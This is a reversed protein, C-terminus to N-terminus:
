RAASAPEPPRASPNRRYDDANVEGDTVWAAHAQAARVRRAQEEPLHPMTAGAAEARDVLDAHELQVAAREAELAALRALRDGLPPGAEYKTARVIRALGDAEARKV